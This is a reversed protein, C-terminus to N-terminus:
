EVEVHVGKRVDEGDAEGNGAAKKQDEKHLDPLGIPLQHHEGPHPVARRLVVSGSLLVNRRQPIKKSDVVVVPPDEEGSDDDERRDIRHHRHPHRETKDVQLLVAEDGEVDDVLEVKHQDEVEKEGVARSTNVAQRLHENLYHDATAVLHALEPRPHHEGLVYQGQM